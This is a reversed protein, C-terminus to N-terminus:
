KLIDPLDDPNPQPKIERVADKCVEISARGFLHEYQVVLNKVVDKSNGEISVEGSSSIKIGAVKRAQEYAVPGIIQEQSKIISNVIQSYLNAM